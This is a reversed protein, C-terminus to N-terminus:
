SFTSLVLRGVRRGIVKDPDVTACAEKYTKVVMELENREEFIQCRKIWEQVVNPNQRLLVSSLLLPRQDILDELVAFQLDVGLADDADTIEVLNTLFVQYSEYVLSFDHATAIKEIAEQYTARAKDFWGLRIYHDALSIWLRGVQSLRPSHQTHSADHVSVPPGGCTGSRGPRRPSKSPRPPPPM